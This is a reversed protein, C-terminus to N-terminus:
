SKLLYVFLYLIFTRTFKLLRLRYNFWLVLKLLIYLALLLLAFWNIVEYFSILVIAEWNFIAVSMFCVVQRSIGGNGICRQSFQVHGTLMLFVSVPVIITFHHCAITTSTTMTLMVRRSQASWLLCMMNTLERKWFCYIVIYVYMYTPIEHM